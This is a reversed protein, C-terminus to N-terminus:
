SPPNRSKVKSSVSLLYFYIGVIVSLMLAIFIADYLSDGGVMPLLIPVLALLPYEAPLQTHLRKASKNNLICESDKETEAHALTFDAGHLFVNAYCKYINIGVGTTVSYGYVLLLGTVAVILIHFSFDKAISIIM